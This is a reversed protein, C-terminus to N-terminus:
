SDSWRALGEALDEILDDTDELGIQLRVVPGEATWRIATRIREPDTPVALSEYGGWSYGLGFLELAEIFRTRAEDGGGKLVFSFLGSAGKFDRAWIEHGPCDPLAPHLV